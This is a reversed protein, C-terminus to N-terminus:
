EGLAALLEIGRRLDDKAEDIRRQRAGAAAAAAYALASLPDRRLGWEELLARARDILEDALQWDDREIAIMARQSLCLSTLAPARSGSLRAAEELQPEAGARDGQLYAAVGALLLCLPRWLSDVPEVRAA